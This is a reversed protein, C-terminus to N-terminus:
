IDCDQRIRRDIDNELETGAVRSYTLYTEILHRRTKEYAEASNQKIIAELIDRHEDIFKQVGSKGIRTSTTEIILASYSQTISETIFVIIPNKTIKAVECHFSVNIIRARKRDEDNAAEARELVSKLHRVEKDTRYKAAMEAARPEIYLRADILHSYDIRGLRILNQFNETIPDSTLESVYAGARVGRRITILGSRQLNRLAERITVRSVQFQEVLERESPIKEGPKFVEDHISQKIAQEVAQSLLPKKLSRFGEM